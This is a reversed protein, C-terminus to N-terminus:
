LPQANVASMRAIIQPIVFIWLEISIVRFSERFEAAIAEIGGHKFVIDLLRLTDQLCFKGLQSTQSGLGISKIFGRVSALALEGRKETSKLSQLSLYNM